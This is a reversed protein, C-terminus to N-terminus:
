KTENPVKTIHQHDEGVIEHSIPTFGNSFERRIATAYAESAYEADITVYKEEAPLLVQGSTTEVGNEDTKVAASLQAFKVMRIKFKTEM